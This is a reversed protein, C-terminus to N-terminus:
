IWKEALVMSLLYYIEETNAPKTVFHNAGSLSLNKSDEVDDSTTYIIVPIDKLKDNSRIQELVKKGSIKPMRLDLFVYDPPPDNNMLWDLASHGDNVTHCDIEPDIEKVADCFLVRDDPDDDAFLIKIPKSMIMM